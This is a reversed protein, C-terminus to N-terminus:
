PVCAFSTPTCTSNVLQCVDISAPSIPVTFTGSLTSGDAFTLGASGTVETAAVADLTVSGSAPLANTSSSALTACAAGFRQYSAQTAQANGSQDFAPPGITVPYTGPGPVSQADYLGVNAVVITGMTSNAKGWCSGHAQAQSCLGQFTSLAVMVAAARLNFAGVRCTVGGAVVAAMEAPGFAAGGLTGSLSGVPAAPPPCQQPVPGEEGGCGVAVMAVVAVVALAPVRSM